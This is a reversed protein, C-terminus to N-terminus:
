RYNMEDNKNRSKQTTSAWFLMVSHPQVTANGQPPININHFIEFCTDNHINGGTTFQSYM